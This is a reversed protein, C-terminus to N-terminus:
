CRGGCNGLGPGPTGQAGVVSGSGHRHASDSRRGRGPCGQRGGDVGFQVFRGGPKDLFPYPSDFTFFGSRSLALSLALLAGVLVVGGIYDVKADEKRHNPLWFLALFIVASQPINLWFIWRWIKTPTANIMAMTVTGRTALVTIPLDGNM